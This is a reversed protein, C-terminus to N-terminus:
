PEAKEFGKCGCEHRTNQADCCDEHESCGVHFRRRHGCTCRDLGLHDAHPKVERERWRAFAETGAVWPDLGPLDALALQACGQHFLGPLLPAGICEGASFGDRTYAAIQIDQAKWAYVKIPRYSPDFRLSKGCRSCKPIETGGDTPHRKPEVITLNVTDKCSMAEAREAEAKPSVVLGAWYRDPVLLV